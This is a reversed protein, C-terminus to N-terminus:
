QVNDVNPKGVGPLMGANSKRVEFFCRVFAGEPWLAPDYMEKVDDCEATVKFSSYRNQVSAIKACTVKRGLKEQLYLSLTDAELDPTFKTAFVSRM